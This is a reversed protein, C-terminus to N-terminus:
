KEETMLSSFDVSDKEEIMGWDNKTEEERVV